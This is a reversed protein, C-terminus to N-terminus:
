FYIPKSIEKRKSLEEKLSKLNTEESESSLYFTCEQSVNTDVDTYGTNMLKGMHYTCMHHCMEEISKFFKTGYESNLERLTIDLLHYYYIRPKTLKLFIKIRINEPFM